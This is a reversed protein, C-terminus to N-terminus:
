LNVQKENLLLSNRLVKQRLVDVDHAVQSKRFRSRSM